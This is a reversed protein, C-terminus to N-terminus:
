MSGRSKLETKHQKLEDKYPSRMELSKAIQQYDAGELPSLLIPQFHEIIDGHDKLDAEKEKEGLFVSPTEGGRRM